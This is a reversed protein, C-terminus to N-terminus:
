GVLAAVAAKLEPEIQDGHPKHVVKRIGVASAASEILPGQGGTFLIAEFRRDTQRLRAIMQIGTLPSMGHDSIVLQIEPDSEFIRMAEDPCSAQVPAYGWISVLEGLVELLAPDDDVILVKQRQEGM